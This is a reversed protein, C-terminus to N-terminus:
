PLTAIRIMYIVSEFSEPTIGMEELQFAFYALGLLFFNYAFHAIIAATTSQKEKLYAFAGGVFIIALSSTTFSYQSHLLAFLLTTPIIGFIPQLAGRFLLEEGVAASAAALFAILLSQSLAEAIQSSAAGQAELTEPSVVLSLLGVFVVVAM